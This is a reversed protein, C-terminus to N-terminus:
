AATEIGPLSELRPLAKDELLSVTATKNFQQNDLTMQATLVHSADFGPSEHQLRWFTQILLGAGVLLVVSLGVEGVVLLRQLRTAGRGASAGRISENLM